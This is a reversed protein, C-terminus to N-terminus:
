WWRAAARCCRARRGPQFAAMMAAASGLALVGRDALSLARTFQAGTAGSLDLTGGDVQTNGVRYGGSVHFVGGPGGHVPTGFRLTAAANVLLPGGVSSGGGNLSLVGSSVQIVGQNRLEADIDVQGTGASM